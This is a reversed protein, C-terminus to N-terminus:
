QQSELQKIQNQLEEIQRTKQEFIKQNKKRTPSWVAGAAKVEAEDAEAQLIKLQAKLKTLENDKVEGEGQTKTFDVGFEEAYGSIGLLVAMQEKTLGKGRNGGQTDKQYFLGDKEDREYIVGKSRQVFGTEISNFLGQVFQYNGAGLATNYSKNPNFGGDVGGQTKNETHRDKGVEMMDEIFLKKFKEPNEDYEVRLVEIARQMADDDNIDIKENAPLAENREKIEEVAWNFDDIDDFLVSKFNKNQVIKNLTGRYTKSMDNDWDRKDARQAILELSKSLTDIGENWVQMPPKFKSLREEEGLHNMVYVGDDKYILDEVSRSSAIYTQDIQDGLNNAKSSNTPTKLYQDVYDIDETYREVSNLVDQMQSKADSKLEKNGFVRTSMRSAQDYQDKLDRLRGEFQDRSIKNDKMENLLSKEAVKFEAENEARKEEVAAAINSVANEASKAIQGIWAKSEPM